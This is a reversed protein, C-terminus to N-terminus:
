HNHRKLIRPMGPQCQNTMLPNWSLLQWIWFTIIQWCKTGRGGLSIKCPPVISSQPGLVSQCKEWFQPNSNFIHFFYYHFFWFLIDIPGKLSEHAREQSEPDRISTGAWGGRMPGIYRKSRWCILYFQLWEFYITATRRGYYFRWFSICGSQYWFTVQKMRM